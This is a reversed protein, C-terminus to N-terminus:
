LKHLNVLCPMNADSQLGIFTGISLFTKSVICLNFFMCATLDNGHHGVCDVSLLALLVLVCLFAPATIIM